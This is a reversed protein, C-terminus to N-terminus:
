WRSPCRRRGLRGNRSHLWVQLRAPVRRKLFEHADPPRRVVQVRAQRDLRGFRELQSQDAFDNGAVLEQRSGSLQCVLIMRPEGFSAAISGRWRTGVM